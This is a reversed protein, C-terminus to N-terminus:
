RSQLVYVQSQKYKLLRDVLKFEKFEKVKFFEGLFRQTQPYNIYRERTKHCLNKKGNFMLLLSQTNRM